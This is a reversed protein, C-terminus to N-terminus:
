SGLSEDTSTEENIRVEERCQIKIYKGIERTDKITEIHFIRDNYRLRKRKSITRSRTYIKHTTQQQSKRMEYMERDSVAQLNGFFYEEDAWTEQYAGGGVAIETKGQIWIKHNLRM